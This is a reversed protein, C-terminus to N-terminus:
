CGSRLRDLFSTRLLPWCLDLFFSFLPLFVSLVLCLVLLSCRWVRLFLLFFFSFLAFGSVLTCVWHLQRVVFFLCSGCSGLSSDVDRVGERGAGKELRLARYGCGRGDKPNM